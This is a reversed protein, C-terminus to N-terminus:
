GRDPPPPVPDVGGKVFPHCRLVRAVTLRTGRWPGHVRYAELAYRSCSPEYRCQGGMWPSLTWRYVWIVAVFPLTLARAIPGVGPSSM